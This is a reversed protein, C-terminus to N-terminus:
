EVSCNVNGRIRLKLSPRKSSIFVNRWITSCIVPDTEWGTLQSIQFWLVGSLVFWSMHAIDYYQLSICLCFMFECLKYKLISYVQISLRFEDGLSCLNCERNMQWLPAITQMILLYLEQMVDHLKSSSSIKIGMECINRWNLMTLYNRLLCFGRHQTWRSINYAITGQCWGKWHRIRFLSWHPSFLEPQLCLKWTQDAKRLVSYYYICKLALYFLLSLSSCNALSYSLM